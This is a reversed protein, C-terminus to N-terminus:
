VNKGWDDLAREMVEISESAMDFCSYGYGLSVLETEIPRISSYNKAIIMGKPAGYGKILCDFTYIKNGVKLAFPSEIIIDLEEALKTIRDNM